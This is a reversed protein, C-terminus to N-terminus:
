THWGQSENIHSGPRCAESPQQPVRAPPTAENLQPFYDALTMPMQPKPTRPVWACPLGILTIREIGCVIRVFGILLLLMAGENDDDDGKQTIVKGRELDGGVALFTLGYDAAMDRSCTLVALAGVGGGPRDCAMLYLPM